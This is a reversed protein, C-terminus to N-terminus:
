FTMELSPLINVWDKLPVSVSPLGTFPVFTKSLCYCSSHHPMGFPPIVRVRKAVAILTARSRCQTAGSAVPLQSKQPGRCEGLVGFKFFDHFSTGYDMGKGSWLLPVQSRFKVVIFLAM